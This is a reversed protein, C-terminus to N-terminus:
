NNDSVRFYDASIEYLLIGGFDGIKRYMSEDISLGAHDSLLNQASVSDSVIYIQEVSEPIARYDFHELPM